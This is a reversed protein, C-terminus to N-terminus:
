TQEPRFWEPSPGSIAEVEPVFSRDLAAVLTALNDVIQTWREASGIPFQSPLEVGRVEGRVARRSAHLPLTAKFGHGNVMGIVQMFAAVSSNWSGVDVQLRVTLNGPTRRQLRFSGSEGRCDYGLPTFARVLDPKKPGASPSGGPPTAAVNEVQHPLDHPLTDLLETMKARYGRVVTRIADDMDPTLGGPSVAAATAAPTAVMPVQITKRVKGCASLLTALDAPPAPLKKAQPDAEVIRLAALSRQRGNVWWKDHVSIGPSTPHGAGIDVGARMLGRLTQLDPQAPLQPGDSFGPVSFHLDIAHCPFSKPVGQAIEKLIAFDIAEVAGTETVNSLVRAEAKGPGVSGTTRVFRELEPWRKVVRAISSIRKTGAITQVAAIEATLPPDSLRLRVTPEGLGAALFGAHVQEAMDVLPDKRSAAFVSFVAVLM